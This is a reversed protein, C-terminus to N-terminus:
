QCSQCVGYLTLHHHDITYGTLVSPVAIQCPTEEVKGCSRCVVHDHHDHHLEYVIKDDFSQQCILNDELFSELNRYVSTKNVKQGVLHLHEVIQSASLLHHQGLLDLIYKKLPTSRKVKAM